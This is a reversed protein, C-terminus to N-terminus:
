ECRQTVSKMTVQAIAATTQNDNSVCIFLQKCDAPISLTESVSPRNEKYRGYQNPKDLYGKSQQYAEAVRLDATILYRCNTLKAPADKAKAADATLCKVGAAAATALLSAGGTASAAAVTATLAVASSLTIVPEGEDRIEVAYLLTTTGPTIRVSFVTTSADPNYRSHLKTPEATLLDTFIPKCTILEGSENWQKFDLQAAGQVYTGFTAMRGNEHWATCLGTAADLAESLLKGEWQKKWSPFYFDRVTGSTQGSTGHRALRAYKADEKISTRTWDQDFYATDVPM